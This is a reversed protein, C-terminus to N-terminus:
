TRRLRPIGNVVEVGVFLGLLIFIIAVALAANLNEVAFVKVLLWYVLWSTGIFIM